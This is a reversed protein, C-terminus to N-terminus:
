FDEWNVGPEIKWPLKSSRMYIKIEVLLNVPTIPRCRDHSGNRHCAEERVKTFMDKGTDNAVRSYLEQRIEVLQTSWWAAFMRSNAFTPKHKELESRIGEFLSIFFRLYMNTVGNLDLVRTLCNRITDDAPPFALDIPLNLRALRFQTLSCSVEIM